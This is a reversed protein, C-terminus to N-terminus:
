FVGGEVNLYEEEESIVALKAAIGEEVDKLPFWIDEMVSDRLEVIGSVRVGAEDEVKIIEFVVTDEIFSGDEKRLLTKLCFVLLYLSLVVIQHM